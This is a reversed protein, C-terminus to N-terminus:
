PKKEEPKGGFRARSDLGVFRVLRGSASVVFMVTRDSEHATDVGAVITPLRHGSTDVVFPRRPTFTVMEVEPAGESPPAPLTEAEHTDHEREPPINADDAYRTAKDDDDM